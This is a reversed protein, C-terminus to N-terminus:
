LGQAVDAGARRGDGAEGAAGRWSAIAAGTVVRAADLAFLRQAFLQELLARLHVLNICPTSSERRWATGCTIRSVSFMITERASSTACFSTASMGMETGMTSAATRSASAWTSPVAWNVTRRCGASRSSRCFASEGSRAVPSPESSNRKRPEGSTVRPPQRTWVRKPVMSARRSVLNSRM